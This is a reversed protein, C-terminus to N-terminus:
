QTSYQRSLQTVKDITPSLQLARVWLVALPLLHLYYTPDVNLVAKPAIILIVGGILVSGEIVALQIIAYSQYKQIFSVQPTTGIEVEVSGALVKDAVWKSTMISSLTIVLHVIRITSLGDAAGCDANLFFVALGCFLTGFLPIAFCIIKLPKLQQETIEINSYM